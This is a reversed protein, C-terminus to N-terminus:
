CIMTRLTQIHIHRCTLPSKNRELGEVNSQPSVRIHVFSIAFFNVWSGLFDADFLDFDPFLGVLVRARTSLRFLSGVSSWVLFYGRGLSSESM